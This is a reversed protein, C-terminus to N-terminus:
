AHGRHKISMAVGASVSCLSGAASTMATLFSVGAELEFGIAPVAECGSWMSTERSRIKPWYKWTIAYAARM